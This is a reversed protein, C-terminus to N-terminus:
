SRTPFANFPQRMRCSSQNRPIEYEQLHPVESESEPGYRKKDHPLPSILIYTGDMFTHLVHLADMYLRLRVYYTRRWSHSLPVPDKSIFHIILESNESTGAVTQSPALVHLATKFPVLRPSSPVKLLSSKSSTKFHINYESNSYKLVTRSLTFIALLNLSHPTGSFGWSCNSLSSERRSNGNPINNKNQTVSYQLIWNSARGIM